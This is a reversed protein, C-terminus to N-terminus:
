ECAPVAREAPIALDQFKLEAILLRARRTTVHYGEVWSELGRLVDEDEFTVPGRDILRGSILGKGQRRRDSRSKGPKASLWRAVPDYQDQDRRSSSLPATLHKAGLLAQFHHLLLLNSRVINGNNLGSATGQTLENWRPRGQDM